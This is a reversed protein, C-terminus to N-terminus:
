SVSHIFPKIQQSELWRFSMCADHSPLRTMTVSVRSLKLSWISVTSHLPLSEPPFRAQVGGANVEAGDEGIKGSAM